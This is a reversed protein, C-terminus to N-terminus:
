IDIVIDRLGSAAPLEKTKKEYRPRTEYAERLGEWSTVALPERDWDMLVVNGHPTAMLHVVHHSSYRHASVWEMENFYTAAYSVCANCECGTAHADVWRQVGDLTEWHARKPNHAIM